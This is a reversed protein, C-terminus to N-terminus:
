ISFEIISYPKKEQDCLTIYTKDDTEAFHPFLIDGLKAATKYEIRFSRVSIPVPMAELAAELYRANNMHGNFDIDGRRVPTEPLAKFPIDPLVIRKDLYEMELQPDLTVRDIEEQPLRTMRGSEYNVFAGTGWSKICPKGDEGYLFTNRYGYYGKCKFISTAASIREGFDPLRVIEAQRFLLFMGLNNKSLFRSFNPESEMWHISCDQMMDVAATLKMKGDADTHGAGVRGTITYM